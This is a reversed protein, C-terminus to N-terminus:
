HCTLASLNLTPGTRTEVLMHAAFPNHPQGDRTYPGM